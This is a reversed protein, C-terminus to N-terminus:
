RGYIEKQAAELALRESKIRLSEKNLYDEREKLFREKAENEAKKIMVSIEESQVVKMKDRILEESDKVTLQFNTKAKELEVRDHLVRNMERQADALLTNAKVTKEKAAGEDEMAKSLFKVAATKQNEVEDKIQGIEVERQKVVELISDVPELLVKRRAELNAIERLLAGRKATCEAEVGILLGKQEKEVRRREEHLENLMKREKEVAKSL